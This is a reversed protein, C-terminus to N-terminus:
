NAAKTRLWNLLTNLKDVDDGARQIAGPVDKQVSEPCTKATERIDTLLRGKMTAVGARASKYFEAWDLPMPDPLSYRNKADWAATHTTHIIRAGTSIGQVRNDKKTSLIEYNAFLLANPWEKVVAAAQGNLKLEYRDFPEISADPSKFKAVKTHALLIVHMRRKNRLNDLDALLLRWQALAAVYGKGYGFDEITKIKDSKAEAIVHAWCLPEVADLTDIVLTQYDHKENTLLTVADRVDQWTEPRPLRAVDLHDTGQEAPLFIPAPAAAGFTSKGVGEPAYLVLSIPSEQKGKVVAALSMRGSQTNASM